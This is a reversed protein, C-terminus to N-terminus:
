KGGEFADVEKMKNKESSNLPSIGPFCPRVGYGLFELVTLFLM